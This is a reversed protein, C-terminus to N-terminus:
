ANNKIRIPERNAIDSMTVIVQFLFLSALLILLFKASRSQHYLKYFGRLGLSILFTIIPFILFLRGLDPQINSLTAPLLLLIINICLLKKYKIKFKTFFLDLGYFFPFILALYIPPSFSFDDIKAQSTFYIVPSFYEAFHFFLHQTDYFYKNEIIEGVRYGGIRFQDHFLNINNLVKANQFLNINQNIVRLFYSEHKVGLIFMIILALGILSSVFKFEKSSIWGLRYGSYVLSPIILWMWLSSIIAIFSIAGIILSKLYVNKIPLLLAGLVALIEFTFLVYVSNSASEYSTWPNLGFILISLNALTSDFLKQVVFFLLFVSGLSALIMLIFPTELHKGFLDAITFSIPTPSKLHLNTGIWYSFFIILCCSFILSISIKSLM